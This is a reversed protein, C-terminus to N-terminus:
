PDPLAGDERTRESDGEDEPEDFQDSFFCFWAGYTTRAKAITIGVAKRATYRCQAWHATM